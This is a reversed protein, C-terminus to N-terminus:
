LYSSVSFLYCILNLVTYLLVLSWGIKQLVSVQRYLKLALRWEGSRDSLSSSKLLTEAFDIYKKKMEYSELEEATPELTLTTDYIEIAEKYYESAKFLDERNEFIIGLRCICKAIAPHGSPYFNNYIRISEQYCEIDKGDDGQKELATGLHFLAEAVLMSDPGNNLEFIRVCEGFCHSALKEENEYTMHVQGIRLLVEAVQASDEGLAQTRGQLADKLADKAKEQSGSSKYICGLLFASNAVSM